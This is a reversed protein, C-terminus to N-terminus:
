KQELSIWHQVLYFLGLPSPQEVDQLNREAQPAQAAALQMFSLKSDM